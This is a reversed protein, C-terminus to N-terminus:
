HSCAISEDKIGVYHPGVLGSEVRAAFVVLENRVQNMAQILRSM